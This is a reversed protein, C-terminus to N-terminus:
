IKDAWGGIFPLTFPKGSIVAFIGGLSALLCAVLIIKWFFDGFVLMLVALVELCFLILGQRGHARMTDDSDKGFLAIFCLFPIYAIIAQHTSGSREPATGEPAEPKFDDDAM